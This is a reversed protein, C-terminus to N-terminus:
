ARCAPTRQPHQPTPVLQEALQPKATAVALSHTVYFSSASRWMQKAPSGKCFCTVSPAAALQEDAAIKNGATTDRGDMICRCPLCIASARKQADISSCAAVM